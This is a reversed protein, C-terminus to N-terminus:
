KGEVAAPEVAPAPAAPPAPPAVKRSGTSVFNFDKTNNKLDRKSLVGRMIGDPGIDGRWFSVGDKESTQMTEWTLTENDELIRLTYNTTNYGAKALNGSSVKGDSFFLTDQEAKIKGKGGAMPKLDIAWESNDLAAKKAALIDEAAYSAGAMTLVAVVSLAIVKNM